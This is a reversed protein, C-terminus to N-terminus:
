LNGVLIKVGFPIDWCIGHMQGVLIWVASTAQKMEEGGRGGRSWVQGGDIRHGFYRGTANIM